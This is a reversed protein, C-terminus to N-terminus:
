AVYAKWWMSLNPLYWPQPSNTNRVLAVVRDPDLLETENCFSLIDKRANRVLKDRFWDGMPIGFGQKPRDIIQDPILGRVVKKLLYKLVGHRTNAESPIGMAFEVLEADLFPVRAELGVGMSMKDVRMLLLEPLRMNLDLYTMWKLHDRPNHQGEFRDRIPQLAEWSSFGAFNQRCSRSLLNRKQGETFAEAGGWFVPEGEAGRRLYEYRTGTSRGSMALAAMGARKFIAPVPLDNVKALKLLTMWGPYGCFLEDAGEGVQCVVAGHKRALRSVYYAPVCTPDGIPEDQLHVMKPLFQELEAPTLRYIHHEAGVEQAMMSAYPTEDAYTETDAPYGISFAKVNAVGARSFLAANTSSDIGGSLFIGVPVDSVMRHRVSQDLRQLLGEAIEDDSADDLDIRVSLADWYRHSRVEGRNNIRLWTANPLKNIGSFLTQPAPTTLFSLYHYFAQEDISRLQGPDVLLAKIESAFSIQNDRISYYLPKVGMRDRVLWLEEAMSDWIAIAFMGIFRKVCDVGWREFARLVVESDSHDTKWDVVGLSQLEGRIETHNYIEGNFVLHLKGSPTEMPQRAVSSLDVIALRRHGMGVRRNESLWTGADDPGRHLMADRMNNILKESVTGASDAFQVVGVLGCM